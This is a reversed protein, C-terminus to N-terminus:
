HHQEKKRHISVQTRRRDAGILSGAIVHSLVRCQRAPRDCSPSMGVVARLLTTMGRRTIAGGATRVAEFRQFPRGRDILLKTFARSRWDSADHTRKRDAILARDTLWGYAAM